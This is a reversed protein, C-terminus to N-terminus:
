KHKRVLELAQGAVDFTKAKGMYYRDLRWEQLIEMALQFDTDGLLYLDKISFDVEDELALILNAFIQATQNRPNQAILLRVKKIARM